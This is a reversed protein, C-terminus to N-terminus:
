DADLSQENQDPNIGVCLPGAMTRERANDRPPAERALLSSGASDYRLRGQGIRAM